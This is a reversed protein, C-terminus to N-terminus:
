PSKAADPAPYGRAPQTDEAPRSDLGQALSWSGGLAVMLDASDHYRLAESQAYALHARQRDRKSILWELVGSKGADHRQEQLQSLQQEANWASRKEAALRADYELSQLVHAVQGLGDLVTARYLALEANFQDGAARQRAVLAGGHFVPAVLGGLLTWVLSPGSGLTQTALATGASASLTFQPYRQADAIGVAASAAHLRAEAALIDPRRRVLESPLSLPLEAPLSFEDLTLDAAKWVAPPKGLLVALEVEANAAQKQLLAIVARDADLQLQASWVPSAGAKGSTYRQRELALIREDTATLDTAIVIQQRASALRLAQNVVNGTVSLRLAIMQYRRNDVQAQQQEIRRATLGFVDPAFSVTAGVTYLNYMPLTHDPRIGLALPPGKQREASAGIDLQPAYASDVERLEQKAQSLTREAADITPNGTLALHVMESLELSHFIRWWDEPVAQGPM